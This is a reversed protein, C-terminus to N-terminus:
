FRTADPGSVALVGEDDLQAFATVPSLDNSEFMTESQSRHLTQVHKQQRDYPPPRDNDTGTHTAATISCASYCDKTSHLPHIDSSTSLFRNYQCLRRPM